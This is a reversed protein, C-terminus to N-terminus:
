YFKYLVKSYHQSFPLFLNQYSIRYVKHSNIHQIPITHIHINRCLHKPKSQPDTKMHGPHFHSASYESFDRIHHDGRNDTLVRHVASYPRKNADLKTTNNNEIYSTKATPLYHPESQYRPLTEDTICCCNNVIFHAPLPLHPM